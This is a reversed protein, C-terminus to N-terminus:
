LYFINYSMMVYMMHMLPFIELDLLQSEMLNRVCKSLNKSLIDQQQGLPDQNSMAYIHFSKKLKQSNSQRFRTSYLPPARTKTGGSEGAEQRIQSYIGLWDWSNEWWKENYKVCVNENCEDLENVNWKHSIKQLLSSWLTWVM